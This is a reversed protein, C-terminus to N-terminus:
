LCSAAERWYTTCHAAVSNARLRDKNPLVAACAGAKAEMEKLAVAMAQPDRPDMWAMTLANAAAIERM